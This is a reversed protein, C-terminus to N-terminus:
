VEKSFYEADKIDGTNAYVNNVGRLSKIATPLISVPTGSAGINVVQAGITPTVGVEYKDRDSIWEGTLTEGNYSAYYPAPTFIGNVVDVEGGYRTGDLDITYIQGNYPEYTTAQAGVELQLTIDAETNPTTSIFDCKLDNVKGDKSLTASSGSDINTITGDDHIIELQVNTFGINGNETFKFSYTKGASLKPTKWANLSGRLIYNLGVAGNNVYHITQNNITITRNTPTYTGNILNFLNGGCRTVDAEDWGSIPCINSYPAFTTAQEGLEIQPYFTTNVSVNPRILIGVYATDGTGVFSISDGRDVVNQYLNGLTNTTRIDIQYTSSGGDSPCGSLTYNTGGVFLSGSTTLPIWTLSSVSGNIKISGDTNKIISLGTISPMDANVNLKNKGAGGVWPSDYGHLDQQPEIAVKLSPMVMDEGDNFSAIAQPLNAVSKLLYANQPLPVNVSVPSYAKGEESYTGNETVSLPVITVDGGGGRYKQIFWEERIM